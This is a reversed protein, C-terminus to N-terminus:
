RRLPPERGRAAQEDVARPACAANAIVDKGTGTEGLLLVPSDIGAVRSALKMVPKLGFNVGIIEDGSLRRLERHLYKNDEALMDKLKLVERHKLANSMEITFPKVLETFLAAHEETYKEMGQATLVVSCLKGEDTMLTMRLISSGEIGHFRVMAAAAPNTEASDIVVSGSTYEKFRLRIKERAEDPMTTVLHVEEGREISAQAITIYAGIGTDYYNLFARDVPIFSRLYLLVQHLSEAQNLSGCIRLTAERFFANTDM